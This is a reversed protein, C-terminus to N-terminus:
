PIENIKEFAEVKGEGQTPVRYWTTDDMFYTFYTYDSTINIYKCAQDSIQEVKEGNVDCRYLGFAGSPSNEVEFYIVEGNTNYNICHESSVVQVEESFLTKKKLQYGDGVDIFYLTEGICIPQMCNGEYILETTDSGPHYRYIFHNEKQEAYYLYGGEACAVPYGVDSMRTTGGKKDTRVRSFYLSTDTYEQYLITNGCLAIYPCLSTTLSRTDGSKLEVRYIGYPRGSLFGKNGAKNSNKSYYLYGNYINLSFVATLNEKVVSQDAKIRYLSYHDSLNSYYVEGKYECFYGGNYLNGALNGSAEEPNQPIREISHYVGICIFATMLLVVALVILINRKM